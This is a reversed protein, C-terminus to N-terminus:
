VLPRRDVPSSRQPRSLVPRCRHCGIAPPIMAARPSRSSIEVAFRFRSRTWGFGRSFNPSAASM